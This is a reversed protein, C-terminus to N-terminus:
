HKVFAVGRTMEAQVKDDSSTSPRLGYSTESARSRMASRKFVHDARAGCRAGFEESRVPTTVIVRAM